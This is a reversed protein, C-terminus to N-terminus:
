EPFRGNRDLSEGSTGERSSPEFAQLKLAKEKIAASMRVGM